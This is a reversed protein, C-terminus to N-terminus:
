VYEGIIENIFLQAESYETIETNKIGIIKYYPLLLDYLWVEQTSEILQWLIENYADTEYLSRLIIEKKRDTLYPLNIRNSNKYLEKEVLNKITPSGKFLCVELGHRGVFELANLKSYCKTLQKITLAESMASDTARIGRLWIATDAIDTTMMYEAGYFSYENFNVFGWGMNNTKASMEINGRAVTNLLVKFYTEESVFMIRMDMRISRKFEMAARISDNLFKKASDNWQMLYNNILTENLNDTVAPVFLLASQLSETGAVTTGTADEYYEQLGIKFYVCPYGKHSTSATPIMKITWTGLWNQADAPRGITLQSAAMATTVMIYRIKNALPIVYEHGTVISDADTLYFYPANGSTIAYTSETGIVLIDGVALAGLNNSKAWGTGSAKVAASIARGATTFTTFDINTWGTLLESGYTPQILTSNTQPAVNLRGCFSKLTNYFDFDALGKPQEIVAKVIGDIYINARIRVNNYGASEVLSTTVNYSPINTVVTAPSSVITLSM